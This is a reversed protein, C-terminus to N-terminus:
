ILGSSGFGKKGRDSEELKDVPEFVLPEVKHIIMQAVRMGDEILFEIDGHNILCVKVEGRYGSDITAPSNPLTIGHKTAIGSRPRIEVEYGDPIELYLGTEFTYREGPALLVKESVRLDWGADSEHAKSPGQVKTTLRYKIAKKKM